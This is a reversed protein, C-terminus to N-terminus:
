ELDLNFLDAIGSVFSRPMHIARITSMRRKVAKWLALKALEQLSKITCVYIDTLSGVFNVVDSPMGDNQASTLMDFIRSRVVCADHTDM